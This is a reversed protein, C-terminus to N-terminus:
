LAGCEFGSHAYGDAKVIIWHAFVQGPCYTDHRMTHMAPSEAGCSACHYM